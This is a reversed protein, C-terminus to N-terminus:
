LSRKRIYLRDCSFELYWTPWGARADILNIAAAEYHPRTTPTKLSDLDIQANVRMENQIYEEIKAVM